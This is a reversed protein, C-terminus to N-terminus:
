PAEQRLMVTIRDAIDRTVRRAGRFDPDIENARDYLKRAGEADDLQAASLRYAAALLRNKAARPSEEVGESERSRRVTANFEQARTFLGRSYETHVM